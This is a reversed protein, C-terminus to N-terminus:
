RFPPEPHRHRPQHQRHPAGGGSQERWFGLTPVSASAALLHQKAASASPFHPSAVRSLEAVKTELDDLRHSVLPDEAGGLGLNPGAQFPPEEGRYSHEEWSTTSANPRFGREHRNKAEYGVFPCDLQLFQESSMQPEQEYRERRLWDRMELLLDECTIQRNICHRFATTMAGAAKIGDSADASTQTDKCGSIMIVDAGSCKGAAGTRSM